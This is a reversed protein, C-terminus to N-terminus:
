PLTREGIHYTIRSAIQAIDEAAEDGVTARVSMHQRIADLSPYEQLTLCDGEFDGIVELVRFTTYRTFKPRLGKALPVHGIRYQQIFTDRDLAGRREMVVMAQLGPAPGDGVLDLHRSADFTVTAVADLAAHLAKAVQQTRLEVNDIKEDMWITVVGGAIRPPLKDPQELAIEPPEGVAPFVMRLYSRDIRRIEVRCGEPAMSRGTELTSQLESDSLPAADPQGFFSM